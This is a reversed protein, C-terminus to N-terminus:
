NLGATKWCRATPGLRRLRASIIKHGPRDGDELRNTYRSIVDLLSRTAATPSSVSNAASRTQIYTM